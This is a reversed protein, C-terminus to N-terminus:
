GKGKRHQAAHVCTAFHSTYRPEATRYDKSVVIAFLAGTFAGRTLIVNGDAVSVADVPM